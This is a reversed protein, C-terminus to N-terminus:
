HVEEKTETEKTEEVKPKVTGKIRLRVTASNVANTTLTVTKSFGGTRNTAYRVKIVDSAGPAIPTRPWTPVTCGCSGKANTIVLPADGTNTFKFERNGDAGNEITGYDITKSEFEIKAGKTNTAAKVTETKEATQAVSLTLIGILAFSLLIIKKM